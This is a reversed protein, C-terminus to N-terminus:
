LILLGSIQLKGKLIECFIQCLWLYYKNLFLTIVDTNVEEQGGEPQTSLLSLWRVCTGFLSYARSENQCTKAAFVCVPTDLSM